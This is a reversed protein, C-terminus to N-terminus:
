AAHGPVQHLRLAAPCPETQELARQLRDRVTGDRQGPDPRTRQGRHRAAEGMGPHRRWTAPKSGDAPDQPLPGPGAKRAHLFFPALQRRFAGANTASLDIEYQSGNLGFRITEEPEVTVKQAM